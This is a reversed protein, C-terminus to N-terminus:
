SHKLTLCLLGIIHRSKMDWRWGIPWSRPARRQPRACSLGPWSHSASNISDRDLFSRVITRLDAERDATRCRERGAGGRNATVVLASLDRLLASVHALAHRASRARPTKTATTQHGSGCRSGHPLNLPPALRLLDWAARSRRRALRWRHCRQPCAAERCGRALVLWPRIWRTGPEDSGAGSRSRDPRRIARSPLAVACHSAVFRSVVFHSYSPRRRRSRSRRSCREQAQVSLADAPVIIFVRRQGEFPRYSSISCGARSDIQHLHIRHRGHRGRRTRSHTQRNSHLQQVQRM